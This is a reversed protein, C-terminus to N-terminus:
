ERSHSFVRQKVLESLTKTTNTVPIQEWLILVALLYAALVAQLFNLKSILYINVALWRLPESLLKEEDFRKM